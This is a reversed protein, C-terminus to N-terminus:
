IYEARMYDKTLSVSVTQKETYGLDTLLKKLGNYDIDGHPFGYKGTRRNSVAEILYESLRM